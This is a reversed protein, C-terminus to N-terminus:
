YKVIPNHLIMDYICVHSWIFTINIRITRECGGNKGSGELKRGMEWEDWKGGIEKGNGM